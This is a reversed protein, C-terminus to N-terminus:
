GLRIQSDCAGCIPVRMGPQQQKLVGM